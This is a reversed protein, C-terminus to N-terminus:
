RPVAAAPPMFRPYRMNQVIFYFIRECVLLRSQGSRIQHLLDVALCVTVGDNHRFYSLM